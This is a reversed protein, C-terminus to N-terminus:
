RSRRWYVGAWDIQEIPEAIGHRMRFDTVAKACGPVAGFDDVILFGGPSLRPYLADLAQMTSEYMDGDLRVVSFREAPIAPLTDRFWGEVFHVRDDLLGYAAFNREVEDRGVALVEVTHHRDGEDAPYQEANPKPLGQFSDAVWVHRDVDAYAALLARMFITAGGRWVGTEILDGAVGDGRVAEYCAQINDLRKLGIMTHARVPWDGGESRKAESFESGDLGIGSREYILDTLCRKMLDLYLHEATM